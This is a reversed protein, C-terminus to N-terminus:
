SSRLARVPDVRSARRAPLFAAVAAVALLGAPVAVLTLPDWPPVGILFGSLYRALAMAVAVGLIAGAGALAV